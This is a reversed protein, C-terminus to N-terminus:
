EGEEEGQTSESEDPNIINDWEKMWPRIQESYAKVVEMMDVMSLDMLSDIKMDKKLDPILVTLHSVTDIIELAMDSKITATRVLLGYAGNGFTIKNSEIQLFQRVNPYTIPYNNDLLKFDIQKLPLNKEM